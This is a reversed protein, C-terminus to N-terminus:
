HDREGDIGDHWNSPRPNNRTFYAFLVIIVLFAPYVVYVSMM